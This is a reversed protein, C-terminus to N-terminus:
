EPIVQGCSDCVKSDIKSSSLAKRILTVRLSDIDELTGATIVMSSDVEKMLGIVETMAMDERMAELRQRLAAKQMTAQRALEEDEPTEPKHEEVAEEVIRVADKAVCSKDSLIFVDGHVEEIEKTTGNHLVKAGKRLEM